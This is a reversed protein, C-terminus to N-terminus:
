LCQWHCLSHSLLQCRLGEQMLWKSSSSSCKSSKGSGPGSVHQQLRRGSVQLQFPHPLLLPHRTVLAAKIRSSSSGSSEALSHPMLQQEWAMRM